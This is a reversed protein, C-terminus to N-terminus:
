RLNQGGAVKHGGIYPTLRLAVDRRGDDFLEGFLRASLASCQEEYTQEKLTTLERKGLRRFTHVPKQKAVRWRLKIKFGSGDAPVEWWAGTKPTPLISKLWDKQEQGRSPLHPQGTKQSQKARKLATFDLVKRSRPKRMKARKPANVDDM